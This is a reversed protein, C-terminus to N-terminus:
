PTAGRSELQPTSAVARRMIHHLFGARSVAAAFRASASHLSDRLSRVEALTRSVEETLQPAEQCGWRYADVADRPRSGDPHWFNTLEYTLRADTHLESRVLADWCFELVAKPPGDIQMGRALDIIASHDITPLEAPFSPPPPERPAPPDAAPAAGLHLGPPLRPAANTMVAMLAALMEPPGGQNSLVSQLQQTLEIVTPPQVAL